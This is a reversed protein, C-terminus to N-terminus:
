ALGASPSATAKNARWADVSFFIVAVWILSFCVIHAMTLEEGYYVAIVFQLTPAIFQMMGVTSLNLRRAALAFFLLPIVTIPGALLLIGALGPDDISFAAEGTQMLWLLYGLAFPLLLVTEVFLGPM